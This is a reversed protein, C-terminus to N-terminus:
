RVDPAVPQPEPEGNYYARIKKAAARGIRRALEDESAQRV